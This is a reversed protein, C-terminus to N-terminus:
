RAKWTAPQRRVARTFLRSPLSVPAIPASFITIPHIAWSSRTQRELALKRSPTTLSGLTPSPSRSSTPASTLGANSVLALTLGMGRLTRLIVLADAVPLPGLGPAMGCIAEELGLYAAPPVLPTFEAGLRELFLAVRGSATVDRGQDHLGGLARGAAELEASIIEQDLSIGHEALIRGVNDTRWAQRPRWRDESDLILTGWLDFLVAKIPM